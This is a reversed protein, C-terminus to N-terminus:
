SLNNYTFNGHQFVHVHKLVKIYIAFHIKTINYWIHKQSYYTFSSSIGVVSLKIWFHSQKKNIHNWIQSFLECEWKHHRNEIVRLDLKKKQNSDWAQFMGVEPDGNEDAEHVRNGDHSVAGIRKIMFISGESWSGM